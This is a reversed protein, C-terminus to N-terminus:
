GDLSTIFSYADALLSQLLADNKLFMLFLCQNRIKTIEIGPFDTLVHFSFIGERHATDGDIIHPRSFVQKLVM